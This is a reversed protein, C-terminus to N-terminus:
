ADPNLAEWDYTEAYLERAQAETLLGTDILLEQIQPVMPGLPFFPVHEMYYGLAESVADWVTLSTGFDDVQGQRMYLGTKYPGFSETDVTVDLEGDLSRTPHVTLTVPQM